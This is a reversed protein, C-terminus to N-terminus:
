VRMLAARGGIYVALVGLAVGAVGRTRGRLLALGCMGGALVVLVVPDRWGLAGLAFTRDALPWLVPMPWPYALDAALHVAMALLSAGFM